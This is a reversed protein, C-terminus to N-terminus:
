NLFDRSVLDDRAKYIFDNHRISPLVKIMLRKILILTKRSVASLIKSPSPFMGTANQLLELYLLKRIFYRGGFSTPISRRLFILTKSLLRLREFAAYDV